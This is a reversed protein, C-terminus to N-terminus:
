KVKIEKSIDGYRSCYAYVALTDEKKLSPINYIAGQVNNNTQMSFNQEIIKKNNLRVEIKKVYHTTYDSVSHSVRVEVSKGKVEIDINSPSHSFALNSSFLLMFVVLFFIM